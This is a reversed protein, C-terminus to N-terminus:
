VKRVEMIGNQTAVAYVSPDRTALHVLIKAASRLVGRHLAIGAIVLLGGSWTSGTFALAVGAGVMAMVIPLLWLRQGVYGRALRPNVIM